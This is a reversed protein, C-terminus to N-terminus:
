TSQMIQNLKEIVPEGADGALAMSVEYSSIQATSAVDDVGLNNKGMWSWLKWALDIRNRAAEQEEQSLKSNIMAQLQPCVRVDPESGQQVGAGLPDEKLSTM